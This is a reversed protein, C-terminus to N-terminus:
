GVPHLDLDNAMNQAADASFQLDNVLWAFCLSSDIKYTYIAKAPHYKMLPAM